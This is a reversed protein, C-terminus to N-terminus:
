AFVEINAGLQNFDRAFTPFTKSICETPALSTEGIAGLGAVILSMAMRHDHYSHLKAGRLFSKRAILGDETESIDAGMKQLEAAIGALRNCEKQRAIAANYIRTEGEAFCAVVALITISDIFNNIDVSIGSLNGGKKVYLTNQVADFHLKAGMKQFVVFLEKDGQPDNMDINKICLESGTILAAAVPFAASSLDGPVTYVFGEYCTNGFLRYREFDCNEYPIGLRDLWHLTLSIWPKEGANKVLLEIPGEAFASAILLASIPQSDEGSVMAKGAKIPGQVIIPAYGDGRMSFTTAGLQSLGNLLPQMPRQHRISYDGTVVIPHPALAGIASCFRLVIGSNGAHIVDEAYRIKGATGHIVLYTPFVEIKAGLLQCAGIMAQTDPSPLYHYVISKGKALAGFLIARLTHSKSPPIQIEGALSSKKIVYQGM